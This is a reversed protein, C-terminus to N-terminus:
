QDVVRDFEGFRAASNRHPRRAVSILGDKLNAISSNADSSVRKWVHELMEILGIGRARRIRSARTQSQAERAPNGKPMRRSNLRGARRPLARRKDDPERGNSCNKM